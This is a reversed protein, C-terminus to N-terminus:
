GTASLQFIQLHYGDGHFNDRENRDVLCIADKPLELHFTNYLDDTSNTDKSEPSALHFLPSLLRRYSLWALNAKPFTEDLGKRENAHLLFRPWLKIM